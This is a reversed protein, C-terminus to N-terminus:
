PTSPSATLGRRARWAAPSGSSGARARSTRPSARIASSSPRRRSTSSRGYGRERMAPYVAHACLFVSDLNVALVNRWELFTLEEFPRHPYIGANNVLVDIRGERELVGTVAGRVADEDHRGCSPRRRRDGRRGANRRRRSGDGDRDLLAVRAGDTGLRRAAAFGLGRAAGTVLATQRCAPAVGGGADLGAPRLVGSAGARAPGQLVGAHPSMSAIANQICFRGLRLRPPCM